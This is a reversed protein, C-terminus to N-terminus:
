GCECSASSLNGFQATLLSIENYHNRLTLLDSELQMLRATLDGIENCSLCPKCCSDSLNLGKLLGTALPTFKACDSTTIWFNGNSDPAISNITKLSPRDDACPANLGLNDGADIAVTTSNISRFKTNTQAIITVDGSVSFSTGDANKFVFRSITSLGPVITRAEVESSASAFTFTGYPKSLMSDVEAVVLKGTANVSSSSPVLYYTKYRVHDPVSISFVGVPTSTGYTVLEIEIEDPRNTIKSVSLRVAPDSSVSMLLDVLFDDPIVFAGSTDTKDVGEKLPFNRLTNANLFDLNEFLAM